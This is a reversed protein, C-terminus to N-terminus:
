GSDTIVFIIERLLTLRRESLLVSSLDRLDTDQSASADTGKLVLHIRLSGAANKGKLLDRFVM